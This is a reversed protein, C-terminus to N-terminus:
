CFKLAGYCNDPPRQGVEPDILDVAVFLNAASASVGYAALNTLELLPINMWWGPNAPCSFGNAAGCSSPGTKNYTPYRVSERQFSMFFDDVAYQPKSSDIVMGHAMRLHQNVNSAVTLGTDESTADIQAMVRNLRTGYFPVLADFTAVLDQNAPNPDPTCGFLAFCGYAGGQMRININGSLRNLGRHCFMAGAGDLASPNCGPLSTDYRGQAMFGDVLAAGIKVGIIERRTMDGDNRVAIELYPRVMTFLSTVPDGAGPAGPQGGGRGMFTLNEIDLDCANAVVAENYGGCGLQLHDINMNMEIKGDLIMRYFTHGSGGVGAIQDSVLLAQGTVESLEDENMPTLAAHAGAASLMFAAASIFRMTGNIIRKMNLVWVM